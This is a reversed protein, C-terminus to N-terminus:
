FLTIRFIGTVMGFVKNDHEICVFQGSLNVKDNLQFYVKDMSPTNNYTLVTGIYDM